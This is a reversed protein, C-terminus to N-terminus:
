TLLHRESAHINGSKQNRDFSLAPYADPLSDRFRRVIYAKHRDQKTESPHWFLKTAENTTPDTFRPNAAAVAATRSADGETQTRFVVRAEGDRPRASSIREFPTHGLLPKVFDSM